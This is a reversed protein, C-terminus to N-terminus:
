ENTVTEEPVFRPFEDISAADPEGIEGIEGHDMPMCGYICDFGPTSVDDLDFGNEMSM